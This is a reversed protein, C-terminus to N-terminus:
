LKDILSQISKGKELSKEMEIVTDVGDVVVQVLEVQIYSFTITISNVHLRYQLSETPSPSQNSNYARQQLHHDIVITESCVESKGLRDINSIDYIGGTAATDVGGTGRKQLKLKKM